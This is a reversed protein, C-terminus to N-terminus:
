SDPARRLKGTRHRFQFEGCGAPCRFYDWQEALRANVGGMHSRTYVLERLCEPCHVRPPPALRDGAAKDM